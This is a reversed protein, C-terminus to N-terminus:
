PTLKKTNIFPFINYAGTSAMNAHEYNRSFYTGTYPTRFSLNKGTNKKPNILKNQTHAKKYDSYDM